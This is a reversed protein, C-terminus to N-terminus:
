RLLGSGFDWHAAERLDDCYNEHLIEARNVDDNSVLFMAMQDSGPLFDYSLTKGDTPPVEVPAPARFHWFEFPTPSEDYNPVSLSVDVSFSRLVPHQRKQRALLAMAQEMSPLVGPLLNLEANAENNPSQRWFGSKTQDAPITILIQVDISAINLAVEFLALLREVGAQVV